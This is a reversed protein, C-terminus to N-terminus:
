EEDHIGLVDIEHTNGLLRVHHRQRLRRKWVIDVAMQLHSDNRGKM